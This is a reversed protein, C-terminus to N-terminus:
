FVIKSADLEVKSTCTRHNLDKINQKHCYRPEFGFICQQLLSVFCNKFGCTWGEISYIVANFTPLNYIVANFTPSAM